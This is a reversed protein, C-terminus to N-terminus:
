RGCFLKGKRMLVSFFMRCFPFSGARAAASIFPAHMAACVKAMEGLLKVDAGNPGFDYAGIMMGVPQGGFQGYEGTYVHQYLGSKTIDGCDEFDELLDEKSANMLEVKINERFETRDVLFKLGRWTSELAQFEPLHLIEDMQAGIKKDLEAIMHDVMRKDVREAQAKNSFLEKLLVEVGQKAVDYGDDNPALRTFEMIQELLPLEAEAQAAQEKFTQNAM